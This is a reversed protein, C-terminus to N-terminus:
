AIRTADPRRRLAAMRVALLVLLAAGAPSPVPTLLFATPVGNFLGSGSIMGLDNIDLAYTLQWGSEPSILSNLDTVIGAEWMMAMESRPDLSSSDGVIVGSTNSARASGSSGAPLPLETMTQGDWVIPHNNLSSDVAYGVILGANNIHLAGVHGAWAPRHLTTLVGSNWQYGLPVGEDTYYSGVVTGSDNIDHVERSFPQGGMQMDTYSDGHWITPRGENVGGPVPGAQSYTGAIQGSNNIASISMGTSGPPRTLPRFVGSELIFGQTYESGSGFEAFIAFQGFDNMDGVYSETAGPPAPLESLQGSRWLYSRPMGSSYDNVLVEGRSNVVTGLGRGLATVNYRVGSPQGASAAPSAPTVATIILVSSAVKGCRWPSKVPM